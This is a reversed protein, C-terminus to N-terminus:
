LSLGMTCYRNSLQNVDMSCVPKQGIVSGEIDSGFEAAQFFLPMGISIFSKDEMDRILVDTAMSGRVKKGTQLISQYMRRRAHADAYAVAATCYFKMGQAGVSQLSDRECLPSDGFCLELYTVCGADETTDMMMMRTDEVSLFLKVDDEFYFLSGEPDSSAYESLEAPAIGTETALRCRIM